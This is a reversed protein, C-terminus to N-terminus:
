FLISEVQEVLLVCVGTVSSRIYASCRLSAKASQLMSRQHERHDEQIKKRRFSGYSTAWVLPSPRSRCAFRDSRPSIPVLCPQRRAYSAPVANGLFKNTEQRIPPLRRVSRNKWFLPNRDRAFKTPIPKHKTQLNGFAGAHTPRGNSPVGM